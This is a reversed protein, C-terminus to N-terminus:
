IIIVREDSGFRGSSVSSNVKASPIIVRVLLVSALSFILIESLMGAM